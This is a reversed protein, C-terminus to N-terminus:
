GFEVQLTRPGVSRADIGDVFSKRWDVAEIAVDEDFKSLDFSATVCALVGVPMVLVIPVLVDCAVIGARVNIAAPTVSYVKDEVAIVPGSAKPTCGLMTAAVAGALIVKTIVQM